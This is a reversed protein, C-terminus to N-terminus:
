EGAMKRGLMELRKKLSGDYIKNHIRVSVGGLLAPDVNDKITIGLGTQQEMHKRLEEKESESLKKPATVFATTHHYKDEVLKRFERLVSPFVRLQRRDLMVYFFNRLYQQADMSDLIKDLVLRKSDHPILPHEMFTGFIAADSILACASDLRSLIEEHQGKEGALQFLAKAYRRAIVSEFM